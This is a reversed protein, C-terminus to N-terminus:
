EGLNDLNFLYYVLGIKFGISSFTKNFLLWKASKNRTDNRTDNGTDNGM